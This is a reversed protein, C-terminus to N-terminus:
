VRVDLRSTDAASRANDVAQQLLLNIADGMQRQADLQKKALAYSLQQQAQTAAAQSTIAQQVLGTNSVNM